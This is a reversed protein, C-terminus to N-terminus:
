ERMLLGPWGTTQASRVEEGDVWRFWAETDPLDEALKIGQKPGLVSVATSLADAAMADQAVVTVLARNMLGLGTKPDLLHSYRKGDIEVFQELDGSTSIGCRALLLIMGPEDHVAIRWAPRDPPPDGIAMNGGADVVARRIGHRALVALARDAAYGKAIAGLDLLMGPKELTATRIAADLVLRKWGMHALASELESREPMTKSKRTSRWLKVIPGVTVDFAGGSMAAYHQSAQLVAFLEPSVPQPGGGSTRSLRSLESEAVYDSMSANLDAIKAYAARSAAAALEENEAYLLISFATGM